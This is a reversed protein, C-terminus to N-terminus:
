DGHEKYPMGEANVHRGDPLIYHGGVRRTGQPENLLQTPGKYTDLQKFDSRAEYQALLVREDGTLDSGRKARLKDFKEREDENLSQAARMAREHNLRAINDDTPASGDELHPALAKDSEAREQAAEDQEARLKALRESDSMSKEAMIAGKLHHDITTLM